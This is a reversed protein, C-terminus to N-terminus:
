KAREMLRICEENIGNDACYLSAKLGGDIEYFIASSVFFVLLTLLFITTNLDIESSKPDQVKTHFKLCAQM